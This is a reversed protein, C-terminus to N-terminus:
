IQDVQRQLPELWRRPIRGFEWPQMLVLKGAPPRDFDPPWRHRLHFEVEGAPVQGLREALVAYREPDAAPGFQDPEFPVLGLDCHGRALLARVLERNVHALSSHVFFSGEWLGRRPSSSLAAPAAVPLFRGDAGFRGQWREAFRTLNERVRDFRGETQGEHHEVLCDPCYVVRQGRERIRLCLDVDEVGNQYGEDFGGLENFLSRRVLMCAGTVMDLDRAQTVRPDDAEVGRWLHEPVGNRLELGAHQIRGTGPYVLRAGVVGIAPDGDATSVLARLWGPRPVTDNNLFVLYEGRAAEAGRNNARAFGQNEDHRLVQLDGEFAHLLYRTWDTSGNDVVIVEYDPDDGTNEVLGYLCQETLEARNYVPVVISVRPGGAGSGQERVARVLYQMVRAERRLAEADGGVEATARAFPELLPLEPSRSANVKESRLGLRTLLARIEALTFFRLHTRDLLGEDRYEWRGNVMLNLLVSQHRVNPISCVLSGDPHLHVLLRRLVAEPDRLHELVDGCVLCDFHGAPYPLDPLTELDGRIVADLHAGALRAAEPDREVGVVEIGPRQSKLLRGLEGAACGVELVRRASAPVLEALEPRSNRYYAPLEPAPPSIEPRPSPRPPVAEVAAALCSACCGEGFLDALLRDARHGYTHRAVAERYGAEAIAEREEARELYHRTLDELNEEDYLVLHRRDVLLEELGAAAPLRDTLLMSGSALAEFVRMNLDGNLSRNFVIRGRSFLLAMEELVRSDVRLDFGARRLRELLRVRDQHWRPLTQGVFVLDYAKPVTFRRHIEPECAAPLWGVARCGAEVFAGIDQRAFMLYTREFGRAYRVRWDRQGTHTDGILCVTPCAFREPHLLLFEPGADIWLVLDPRWDAPLREIVATAEIEGWPLPLDAPRTLRALLGLKDEEGAGSPKLAHQGEWEKWQGLMAADLHPGCTLVEHGRRLAREYYASTSLPNAPAVLLIRLRRSGTTAAAPQSAVTARAPTVQAPSSSPVTAPLVRERGQRWRAICGSFVQEWAAACDKLHFREVVTQRARRGLETALERDALLQRLRTRLRDPDAEVFGNWGDRIPTSGNPTSVVPMGTAMAELVALNYGDEHEDALTCLLVRHRRYYEKLEEWSGSARAGPVTPNVGVVTSPIETGLLQEQLTFGQMADRERLRNGVRLVRAVEGTYGGYEEPDIGSVVVPGDWGWDRRKKESIFAIEVQRFWPRLREVYAEKAAGSLGADTGIMNLMVFLRPLDWGQVEQVDQLTLCLALDYRGGRAGREAEAWGVESVNPPLPRFGTNWRRDPDQRPPAVEFLHPMGAYLCIYPEHWNFVLVRRRVPTDPM